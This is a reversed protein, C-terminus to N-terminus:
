HVGEARQRPGAARPKSRQTPEPSPNKPTGSLSSPSLSLTLRGTVRTRQWSRGNFIRGAPKSRRYCQTRRRHPRSSPTQPPPSSSPLPPFPPRELIRMDPGTKKVSPSRHILPIERQSVKAPQGFLYSRNLPWTLGLFWTHVQFTIMVVLTRLIILYITPEAWLHRCIERRKLHWVEDRLM